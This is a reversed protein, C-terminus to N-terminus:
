AQAKDEEQGSCELIERHMVPSEWCRRSVSELRNKSTRRYAGVSRRGEAMAIAGGVQWWSSLTHGEPSKGVREEWGPM